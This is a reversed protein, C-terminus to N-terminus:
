NLVGVGKYYIDVTQSTGNEDKEAQHIVIKDIFESLIQPTLENIESYKDVLKIFYDVGKRTTNREDIKAQYEALKSDIEAQEKEYGEAMAFYREDSIKGLARDEFLQKIIKDLNDRRSKMKENEKVTHKYERDFKNDAKKNLEKAFEAKDLNARSVINRISKLVLDILVDQKIHHTTCDSTRKAYGSCLYYRVPSDNKYRIYMKHGCDACFLYSQFIDPDRKIPVRKKKEYIAQVEEWDERSIIPENVDKFIVREELPRMLRKRNKYSKSTTKFNVVDGTYEQRTLIRKVTEISWKYKKRTTRNTPLGKSMLYETPSLIGKNELCAIIQSIGMGNLYLDYIERIVGAAEEDVLWHKKDNPIKLYGYPAFPCMIEGSKGKSQFVARIKKSCDRAYLGNGFVCELFLRVHILLLTM